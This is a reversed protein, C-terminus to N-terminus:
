ARQQEKAEQSTINSVHEQYTDIIIDACKRRTKEKKQLQQCEEKSYFADKINILM